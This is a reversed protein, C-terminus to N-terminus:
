CLWPLMRASTSSVQWPTLFGQRVYEDHEVRAAAIKEWAGAYLGLAKGLKNNEDSGLGSGSSEQLGTAAQTAARGLAHPLTKHQAALPTIPSPAPLSTGKLNTAAFNTLGHGISTSLEAISEQIASPYDYTETDYVKTIRHLSFSM